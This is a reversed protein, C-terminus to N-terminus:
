APLSSHYLVMKEIRVAHTFEWFVEDIGLKSLDMDVSILGPMREDSGIGGDIKYGGLVFWDADVYKETIDM